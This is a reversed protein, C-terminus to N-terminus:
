QPSEGDRATLEDHKLGLMLILLDNLNRVDRGTLQEIRHLRYTVTNPHVHLVAASKTVNFGSDVYARLTAVLDSHRALDYEVLPRLTETLAAEIAPSARVIHDVLVEDFVLPRRNGATGEALREAARAEEYGAAIATDGTHRGSIGIAIGDTELADSLETSQRRVLSVGTGGDVPYAAVVEGERIGVLLQGDIPRLYTRAAEVIRRLSAYAAAPLNELENVSECTGRIVVVIYADALRIHLSRARRRMLEPDEGSVLGELLDRQLLRLDRLPSQVEDLYAQVGAGTVSDVHRLLRAAAELAATREEPGGERVADVVAAWATQGFLRWARFFADLPVEHARRAAASRVWDLEAESIGNGTELDDVLADINALTFKTVDERQAEDAVRYDVIEDRLRDVFERTLTERRDRIQAAITALPTPNTTSPVPRSSPEAGTTSDNNAGPTSDRHTMHPLRLDVHLAHDDVPVRDADITPRRRAVARV